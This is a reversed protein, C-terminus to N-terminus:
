SAAGLVDLVVGRVAVAVETVYERGHWPNVPLYFVSRSAGFARAGIGPMGACEALGPHGAFELQMSMPKFSHRAQIPESRIITERIRRVVEDLKERGGGPLQLDYVWVVDRPPMKWSTPFCDDYWKEIQRRKELSWKVNRLSLIILEALSDALRYNCGRPSHWFDHNATFGLSRLSRARAALKEDRFAVCGGEEGHVIKNQYFSYCAADTLPHPKVGHIEAMDEVVSMQGASAAEWVRESCRRGYIHTALLVEAKSGDRFLAEPDICLREDCDVFVPKLGAMVAARPCAIMNFDSMIVESGPPLHLSEFALHLAATGSSCAVVYPMGIWEALEKELEEHPRM